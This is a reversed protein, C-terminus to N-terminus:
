YGSRLKAFLAVVAIFGFAVITEVYHGMIWSLVSMNALQGSVSDHQGFTEFTNSLVATVMIIFAFVIIVAFFLVPHSDLMFMSVAIALAFIVFVGLFIYDFLNDYRNAFNDVMNKSLSSAGTDQYQDNLDGMLVGAIVVVIAIALFVIAFFLFDQMYAKKM